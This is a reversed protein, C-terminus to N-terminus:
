GPSVTVKRTGITESRYRNTILSGTLDGTCWRGEPGGSEARTWPASVRQDSSTRAANRRVTGARRPRSASPARTVVVTTPSTRAIGTMEPIPEPVGDIASSEDDEDDAASPGPSEGTTMPTSPSGGAEEASAPTRVEAVTEDVAGVVVEAPPPPSVDDDEDEVESWSTAAAGPVVPDAGAPAGAASPDVVSGRVGDV